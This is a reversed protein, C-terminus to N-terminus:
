PNVLAARRYREYKESYYEISEPDTEVECLGTYAGSASSLDPFEGAGVAAVLAAGLAPADPETLRYLKKGGMVAALIGRWLRSKSAGGSMVVSSSEEGAAAFAECLIRAEFAASEMAALAAEEPPRGCDAPAPIAGEIHPISQGPPLTTCFLDRTRGRIQKTGTQEILEDVGRMTLGQSAVYAELAGGCGSMSIMFGYRGAAPHPCSPPYPPRDFFSGSIGFMVWATGTACLIRGRETVGSGVSACYQDHAGTFVPIGAHLGLAAAAEECLTGAKSGCPCIEPLSDEKIGLFELTEADYVGKKVDYLRTIAQGTPDTVYNGTLFGTVSEETTLWYATKNFIEPNKERLMLIKATAATPSMAWGSLERVRNGFVRSIQAAEEPASRDMWTYAPTLPRYQRDAAYVSGAQASLSIGKIRRLEGEDLGACAQKVAEASARNWDLPDQLVSDGRRDTPYAASGRGAVRREEGSAILVAKVATSGVDIGLYYNM